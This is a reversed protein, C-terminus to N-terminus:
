CETTHPNLRAIFTALALSLPFPLRCDYLHRGEVSLLQHLWWENAHM